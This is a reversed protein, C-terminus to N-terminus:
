TRPGRLTVDAAAPGKGMGAAPRAHVWSLNGSSRSDYVLPCCPEKDCRCRSSHFVRELNLSLHGGLSRLPTRKICIVPSWQEAGAIAGKESLTFPLTERPPLIDKNGPGWQGACIDGGHPMRLLREIERDGM